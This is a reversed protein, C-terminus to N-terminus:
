RAQRKGATRCPCTPDTCPLMGLELAIEDNNAEKIDMLIESLCKLAPCSRRAEAPLAAFLQDYLVEVFKEFRIDEM